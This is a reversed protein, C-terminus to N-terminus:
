FFFLVLLLHLLFLNPKWVYWLLDYYICQLCLLPLSLSSCLLPFTPFVQLLKHRVASVFFASTMSSQSTLQTAAVPACPQRSTVHHPPHSSPLPSAQKLTPERTSQLRARAGSRPERTPRPRSWRRRAPRGTERPRRARQSTPGRVRPRCRWRRPVARSLRQFLARITVLVRLVLLSFLWATGSTDTATTDNASAVTRDTASAIATVLGLGAAAADRQGIPSFLARVRISSCRHTLLARTLRVQRRVVQVRHRATHGAALQHPDQLPRRQRDQEAQNALHRDGADRHRECVWRCFFSLLTLAKIKVHMDQHVATSSVREPTRCPERSLAAWSPRTARSSRRSSRNASRRCQRSRTGVAVSSRALMLSCNYNSSIKKANNAFRESSRSFPDSSFNQNRSYSDQHQTQFRFM